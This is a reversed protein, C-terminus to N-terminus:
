TKRRKPKPKSPASRGAVARACVNCVGPSHCGDCVRHQADGIPEEGCKFCVV